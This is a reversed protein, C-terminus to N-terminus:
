LGKNAALTQILNTEKVTEPQTNRLLEDVSESGNRGGSRLLDDVSESGLDDVKPWRTPVSTSNEYGHDLRRLVPRSTTIRREKAQSAPCELRGHPREQTSRLGRSLLFGHRGLSQGHALDFVQEAELM